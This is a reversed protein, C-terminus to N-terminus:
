FAEKILHHLLDFLFSLFILSAKQLFNVYKHANNNCLDEEEEEEEQSRRRQVRVAVLGVAAAVATATAAVAVPSQDADGGAVASDRLIRALDVRRRPLFGDNGFAHV